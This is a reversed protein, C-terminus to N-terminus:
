VHSIDNPDYVNLVDFIVKLEDITLGVEESNCPRNPEEKQQAKWELYELQEQAYNM